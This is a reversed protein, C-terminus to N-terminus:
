SGETPGTGKKAGKRPKKSKESHAGRDSAVVKSKRPKKVKTKKARSGPQASSRFSRFEGIAIKLEANVDSQVADVHADAPNEPAARSGRVASTRERWRRELKRAKARWFFLPSGTNELEANHRDLAGVGDTTLPADTSSTTCIGSWEAAWCACGSREGYGACALM